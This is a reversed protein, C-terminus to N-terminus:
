REEASREKPTGSPNLAEDINLIVIFETGKRGVGEIISEDLQFGFQPPREVKSSDLDIVERVSDALVGIVLDDPGVRANLVIIRSGEGLVTRGEGFRTKLDAVPIVSGRFNIVGRLFSRAKPVRTIKASELVVHVKSVDVAFCQDGLDFALYRGSGQAPVVHASM